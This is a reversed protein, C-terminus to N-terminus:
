PKARRIAAGALTAIAGLWASCLEADGALGLLAISDSAQVVHAPEVNEIADCLASLLHTVRDAPSPPSAAGRKRQKYRRQRLAGKSIKTTVTPEGIRLAGDGAAKAAPRVDTM